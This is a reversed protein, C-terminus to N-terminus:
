VAYIRSSLRVRSGTGAEHERIRSRRPHQGRRLTTSNTSHRFSGDPTGGPLTPNGPTGTFSIFLAADLLTLRTFLRRNKFSGRSSDWGGRSGNLPFECPLGVLVFVEQSPCGGFSVRWILHRRLHKAFADSCTSRVLIDSTSSCDILTPSLSEQRRLHTECKVPLNSQFEDVLAPTTPEWFRIFERGCGEVRVTTRWIGWGM